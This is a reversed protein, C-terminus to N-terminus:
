GWWVTRYCCESADGDSSDDGYQKIVVSVLMVMMVIMMMVTRKDSDVVNHQIVTKPDPTITLPRM